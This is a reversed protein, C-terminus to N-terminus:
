AQVDEANMAPVQAALLDQLEEERLRGSVNLRIYIHTAGLPEAQNWREAANRMLNDTQGMYIVTLDSGSVRVFAFNGGMPTSVGREPAAAYRYVAGSAGTLDIQQM